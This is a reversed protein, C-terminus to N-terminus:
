SRSRSSPVNVLAMNLATAFRAFIVHTMGFNRSFLKDSADLVALFHSILM